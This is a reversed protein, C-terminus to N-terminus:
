EVAKMMDEVVKKWIKASNEKKLEQLREFREKPDEITAVQAENQADIADAEEMLRYAEELFPRPDRFKYQIVVIVGVVVVAMVVLSLIGLLRKNLRKKAM